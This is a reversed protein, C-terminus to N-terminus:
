NCDTFKLYPWRGKDEVKCQFCIKNELFQVNRVIFCVM